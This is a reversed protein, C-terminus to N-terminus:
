YIKKWKQSKQNKKFERKRCRDLAKLKDTFWPQDEDSTKFCKLPFIELYKKLLINQLYEAKFNIDNSYYLSSWDHERLWAGYTALGSELLPRFQVTKYQRPEPISLKCLPQFLVILHDSPKGGIIDSNIPPKTVPPNYLESLDTIITDLTAPPNLRIPVDVVQKFNQSLQLIPSLDMAIFRCKPYKTKILNISESMHDYIM